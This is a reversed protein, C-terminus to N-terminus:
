GFLMCSCAFVSTLLSSCAAYALVSSAFFFSISMGWLSPGRPPEFGFRGSEGDRSAGFKWIEPRSHSNVVAAHAFTLLGLLEILESVEFLRSALSTWRCSAEQPWLINGEDRRDRWGALEMGARDEPANLRWGLECEAEMGARM